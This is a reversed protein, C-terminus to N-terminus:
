EVFARAKITVVEAPSFDFDTMEAGYCVVTKPQIIELARRMGAAWLGRAEGDKMVGVTSVAVTGGGEIGEFCWDLTDAGAYQLTPIVNIGYDQMMQGILRSRYVNWIKMARPMDAYLSFDPTLVCPFDMLKQIYEHPDNWIREFQYDDLFFHVGKDREKTSLVYNFGILETPVFSCAKLTPLDLPGAVRTSDYDQLNYANFTREREDGYYGSDDEPEASDEDDEGDFDLLDSPSFGYAIMDYSKIAKLESKKVAEDWESLEATRNHALAYARRQESNLHDLHIIPIKPLELDVAAIQRGHGEVINNAKGWVGVPDNFGFDRISQKIAEIDETEHRRANHKYAKLSRPDVYEIALEFDKM